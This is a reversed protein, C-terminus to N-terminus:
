WFLVVELECFGDVVLELEGVIILDKICVICFRCVIIELRVESIVVLFVLRLFKGVKLM